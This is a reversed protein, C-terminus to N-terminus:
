RKYWYVTAGNAVSSELSDNHISMFIDGSAKRDELKVYEDDSRTM